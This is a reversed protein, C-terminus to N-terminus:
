LNERFTMCSQVDIKSLPVIKGSEFFAGYVFFISLKFKKFHHSHNKINLADFLFCVCFGFKLQFCLNEKYYSFKPQFSIKCLFHKITTLYFIPKAYQELIYSSFNM